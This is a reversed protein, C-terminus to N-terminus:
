FYERLDAFRELMLLRRGDVPQLAEHELVWTHPHPVFVAHIGAALAPNIDSRPSNGIMWTTETDLALEQMLRLYTDVNKEPVVEARRFNPELGSAEIKLRQEDPDGKTVLVLDHRPALYALTAEVGPLIEIPHQRIDQAFAHVRAIDEASVEREVLRRYTAELSRAFNETGYGHMREMENIVHRVEEPTLTSHALFAIFAAITREFYINNEWLTDDGDVLLHQRVLDEQTAHHCPPM